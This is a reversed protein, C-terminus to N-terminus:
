LYFTGSNAYSPHLLTHNPVGIEFTEIIRLHLMSGPWLIVITNPPSQQTYLTLLM